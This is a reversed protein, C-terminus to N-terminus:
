GEVNSAPTEPHASGHHGIRMVDSDVDGLGMMRDSIVKDLPGYARVPMPM